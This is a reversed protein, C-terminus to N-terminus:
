EALGVLRQQLLALVRAQGWSPTFTHSPGAVVDISVHAHPRELRRELERLGQEGASFVFLTEVGRSGLTALRRAVEDGGGPERTALSRAAVAVGSVLIGAVRRLDIQGSLLKRWAGAQVLRHAFRRTEVVAAEGARTTLFPPNLLVLAAADAAEAAHFAVWGGACQGVVVVRGAGNARAFAAAAAVDEVRDMTYLANEDTPTEGDSDGIGRLDLRLSTVGAAALGRALRAYMRGTGMRRVAGASVLVVWTPGAREPRAVIGCLAGARGDIWVVEERVGGGVDGPEGAAPPRARAGAPGCDLFAVAREVFLEPHVAVHPSRMLAGYGPGPGTEVELGEATLHAVLEPSPPLTDRGLLLVRPRGAPFSVRQPDLEKLETLTEPDLVFGGAEVAGAPLAPAPPEPAVTRAQAELRSLAGVERVYASGAIPAWLLLRDVDDRRAAAALALTSGLRVGVLALREVDSRERLHECAADVAAHWSAVRGPGDGDGDPSDGDGPWDLLLAPVGGAALRRALRAFARYSAMSEHGHPPCIVAALGHAAGDRPEHVFALFRGGPPGLHIGEPHAGDVGLPAARDEPISVQTAM